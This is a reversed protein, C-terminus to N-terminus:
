TLLGRVIWAAVAFYVLRPTWEAILDERSALAEDLRNASLTVMADVKGAGEGSTILAASAADLIGHRILTDGLAKGASIDDLLGARSGAFASGDVADCALGMATRVDLGAQLGIGLYRLLDRRAYDRLLGGIVPLRNGAASAADVLPRRFAYMLRWARYRAALPALVAVAYAAVGIRGAALAPLPAVVLAILLVAGPLLLKGRARRILAARRDLQDALRELTAAPSGAAEAARVFAGEAPRLLGTQRGADAFNGGAALLRGFARCAQAVAPPGDSALFQAARDPPIGATELRALGRLALSREADSFGTNRSVDRITADAEEADCCLHM